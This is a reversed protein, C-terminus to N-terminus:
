GPRRRSLLEVSMGCVGSDVIAGDETLKAVAVRPQTPVPLAPRATIRAVVSPPWLQCALEGDVWAGARGPFRGTM